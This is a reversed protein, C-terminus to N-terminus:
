LALAGAFLALAPPAPPSHRLPRHSLPAEDWRWETIDTLFSTLSHVRRAQDAKTIVEGNKVNIAM